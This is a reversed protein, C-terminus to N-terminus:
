YIFRIGKDIVDWRFDVFGFGVFNMESLLFHVGDPAVKEVYAVHGVNWAGHIYPQYTVISKDQPLPGTPIGQEEASNIWWWANGNLHVALDPRKLAAYYTCQGYPFITDNGLFYNAAYTPKIFVTFNFLLVLIVAILKTFVM